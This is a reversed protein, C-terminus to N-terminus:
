LYKVKGSILKKICTNICTRINKRLPREQKVGRATV